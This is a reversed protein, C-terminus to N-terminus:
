RKILQPKPPSFSHPVDSEIVHPTSMMTMTSIPIKNSILEPLVQNSASPAQTSGVAKSLELAIISLTKSKRLMLEEPKKPSNAVKIPSPNILSPSHLTSLLVSGRSRKVPKVKGVGTTSPAIKAKM